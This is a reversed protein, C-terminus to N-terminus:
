VGLVRRAARDGRAALSLRGQRAAALVAGRPGRSRLTCRRRGYSVCLVRASSVSPADPTHWARLAGELLLGEVAAEIARGRVLNKGRSSTTCLRSSGARGPRGSVRGAPTRGEVFVRNSYTATSRGSTAPRACRPRQRRGEAAWHGNCRQRGASSWDVDGGSQLGVIDAKRVFKGLLEYTTARAVGEVGPGQNSEERCTGAPGGTADTPLGPRPCSPRSLCGSHRLLMSTAASASRRPSRRARGSRHRRGHDVHGSSGHQVARECSALELHPFDHHGTTLIDLWSYSLM